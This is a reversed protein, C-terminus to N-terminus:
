RRSDRMAQAAARDKQLVLNNVIACEGAFANQDGTTTRIKQYLPDANAYKANVTVEGVVKPKEKDDQSFANFEFTLVFPLLFVAKFHKM